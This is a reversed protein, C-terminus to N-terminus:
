FSRLVDSDYESHKYHPLCQTSYYRSEDDSQQFILWSKFYKTQAFTKCKIEGTDIFDSM